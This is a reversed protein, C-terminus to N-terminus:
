RPCGLREIRPLRERPPNSRGGGAPLYVRLTLNFRDIGGTPLWRGPQPSPAALVTWAQREAPAMAASGASYIGAPNAVLYGARDYLTLSFWAGGVDGGGIRYRCRGDLPRGEDDEDASYYRAERAPLALLGHLAVTARTWASAESAGLDTGTTWPGIGAESGFAGSRVSWAAAGAGAALGLVGCLLFRLVPKM